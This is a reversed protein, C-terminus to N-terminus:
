QKVLRRLAENARAQWGPGSAQLGDFVDQDVPFTVQVKAPEADPHSRPATLDAYVAPPLVMSAPRADRFFEDDLEPSDPDQEIGRQITADDEPSPLDLKRPM